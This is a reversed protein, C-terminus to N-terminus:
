GDNRLAFVAILNQTLVVDGGSFYATQMIPFTLRRVLQVGCRRLWSSPRLGRYLFVPERVQALTYGTQLALQRLASTGLCSRHTLDGHQIARAFPSDGSPVRSILLGDSKLISRIELLMGRLHDVELHEFVDFATVVDFRRQGKALIPLADQAVLVNYGAKRGAAILHTNIETGTYDFGAARCFAAFEGNGFGIELVGAGNSLAAGSTKLEARYYAASSRDCEGFAQNEVWGKWKVYDDELHQQKIINM